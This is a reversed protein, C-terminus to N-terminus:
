NHTFVFRDHFLSIPVSSLFTSLCENSPDNSKWCIRTNPIVSIHSLKSKQKNLLALLSLQGYLLHENHFPGFLFFIIDCRYFGDLLNVRGMYAITVYSLTAIFHRYLSHRGVKPVMTTLLWATEETTELQVLYSSDDECTTQFRIFPTNYSVTM